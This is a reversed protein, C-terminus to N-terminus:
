EFKLRADKLVDVDGWKFSCVRAVEVGVMKGDVSQKESVPVCGGTIKVITGPAASGSAPFEIAADEPVRHTLIIDEVYDDPLTFMVNKDVVLTYYDHSFKGSNVCIDTSHGNLNQTECKVAAMAPGTICCLLILLQKRM